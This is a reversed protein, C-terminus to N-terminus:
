HVNDSDNCIMEGNLIDYLTYGAVGAAVSVNLSEKQGRMPIDVAADCHELVSSEIGRPENGLILAVPRGDSRFQTVPVSNPTQELAVIRVGRDRLMRLLALSDDWKEWPVMQDAGLATKGIMREPKTTWSRTGDHPPCTYGSCYVTAVGIGDATRFIAGVNYASRINHLIFYLAPASVTRHAEM